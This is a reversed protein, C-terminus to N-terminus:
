LIRANNPDIKAGITSKEVFFDTKSIGESGCIEELIKAEEKELIVQLRKKEGSVIQQRYRQQCEVTTKDM